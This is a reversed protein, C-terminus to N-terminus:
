KIFTRKVRKSFAFYPVWILVAFNITLASAPLSLAADDSMPYLINLVLGLLTALCISFIIFRPIYRRKRLLGVCCSTFLVTSCALAIIQLTAYAANTTSFTECGPLLFSFYTEIDYDTLRKVLTVPTALTNIIMGALPLILWGGIGTEAPALMSPLPPPCQPRSKIFIQVALLTTTATFLALLALPWNPSPSESDQTTQTYDLDSYISFTKFATALADLDECYAVVDSPPVANTVANYNWHLELLQNTFTVDASAKFARSESTWHSDEFAWTEPEPLHVRVTHELQYPNSLYIPTHRTQVSPKAYCSRLSHPAFDAERLDPRQDTTWFNSICYSECIKVTNAVRDDSFALPAAVRTGPYTSQYFDAYTKQIDDKSRSAIFERTYDASSGRHVTEVTLTAPQEYGPITFTETIRQSYSQQRSAHMSTLGTQGPALVLAYGADTVWRDHLTGGQLSITPDIWVPGSDTLLRVICHNFLYPSPMYNTISERHETGVLAPAADFGLERALACLLVSKDKCDGFLRNATEFALAPCFSREGVEIGLYRIDDQVFRIAHQLAQERPLRRWQALRAHLSVDLVGADQYLPIAKELVANWDPTTSCQIWDYTRWSRPTNDELVVPTIDHVDWTYELVAGNTKVTPIFDAGYSRLKLDQQADVLMRYHVSGVPQAWNMQFFADISDGFVPEQGRLSFEYHLTDGVRIDELFLLATLTGNYLQRNLGKEQQIVQLRNTNLLNVWTGDRHVGVRHISLEQYAPEYAITIQTSAHAGSENLITRAYAHYTTSTPSLHNSQRDILLYYQGGEIQDAPIEAAEPLSHPLVWQPAPGIVPPSISAASPTIM